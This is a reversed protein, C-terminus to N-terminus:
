KLRLLEVAKEDLGDFYVEARDWNVFAYRKRYEQKAEDSERFDVLVLPTKKWPWDDSEWYTTQYNKVLRYIVQRAYEDQSPLSFGIIAMGFNAVGTRGLGSWFDRYMKTYILKMPSPNLLSPTAHFLVGRGYLREIDRMRYIQRLPDEPFHPGEILPFAGFREPTHFILDPTKKEFGEAKRNEELQSYESRDFWDISGHLKTIIVEDRRDDILHGPNEPDVKLRYPFLRFPVGAAELSHELLIDYNFTLVLDDPKLIEAFRLYLEPIKNRAPMSATLIEGILTKVLVQTENGHVSWTDSGRLWLYHEIDLFAMFDEFNVQEPTLEIGDCHKRYEIYMDLDERFQSARGTMALGKHRIEDWLESALPLGAPQSFGAGLIYIGFRKSAFASVTKPQEPQQRNLESSSRKTSM